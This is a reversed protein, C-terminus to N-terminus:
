TDLYPWKSDKGQFTLMDTISQYTTIVYPKYIKLKETLLNYHLVVVVHKISLVNRQFRESCYINFCKNTLTRQLNLQVTM